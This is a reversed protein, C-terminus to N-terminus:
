GPWHSSRYLESESPRRLLKHWDCQTTSHKQLFPNEEWRNQLDFIHVWNSLFARKPFLIEKWFKMRCRKLGSHPPWSCNKRTTFTPFSLQLECSVQMRSCASHYKRQQSWWLASPKTTTDTISKPRETSGLSLIVCSRGASLSWWSTLVLHVYRFCVWLYSWSSPFLVSPEESKWQSTREIWMKMTEPVNEFTSNQRFNCENRNAFKLIFLEWLCANCGSTIADYQLAPTQNPM